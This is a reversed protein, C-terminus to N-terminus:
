SLGNGNQAILTLLFARDIKNQDKYIHSFM